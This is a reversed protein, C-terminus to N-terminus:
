TASLTGLLLEGDGDAKLTVVPSNSACGFTLSSVSTVLAWSGLSFHYLDVQFGNIPQSPALLESTATTVGAGAGLPVELTQGTFNENFKASFKVKFYGFGEGETSGEKLPTADIRFGLDFEGLPLFGGTGGSGSTYGGGGIPVFGGGTVAGASAGGGTSWEGLDPANTPTSGTRQAQQFEMDTFLVEHATVSATETAHANVIAFREACETRFFEGSDDTRILDLPEDASDLTWLECPIDATDSWLRIEAYKRLHPVDEVMGDIILLDGPGLTTEAYTKFRTPNELAMVPSYRQRVINLRQDDLEGTGFFMEVTLDDTESPNRIGITSFYDGPNMRRRWGLNQPIEEGGNATLMFEHTAESILWFTGTVNLTRTAGPAVTLRKHTLISKGDPSSM